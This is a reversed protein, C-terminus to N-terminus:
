TAATPSEADESESESAESEAPSQFADPHAAHEADVADVLMEGLYDPTLLMQCCDFVITREAVGRQAQSCQSYEAQNNRLLAEVATPGALDRWSVGGEGRSQTLIRCLKAPLRTEAYRSPYAGGGRVDMACKLNDVVM